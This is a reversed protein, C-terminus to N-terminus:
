RFEDGYNDAYLDAHYDNIASDADDGELRLGDTYDLGAALVEDTGNLELGCARCVFRDPWVVPELDMFPNGDRDFDVHELIEVVGGIAADTQCAPCDHITFEPDSWYPLHLAEATNFGVPRDWRENFRERAAVIRAGVLRETESQKESLMGAAVGGYPGLFDELSTGNYRAVAAQLAALMALVSRNVENQSGAGFHAATNRHRALAKLDQSRGLEPLAREARDIATTLSITRVRAAMESVPAGSTALEWMSEFSRPEAILLVNIKALVAKFAFEVAMGAHMFLIQPERPMASYVNMAAEAEVRARRMLWASINSADTLAILRGGTGTTRFDLPVVILSEDDRRKM